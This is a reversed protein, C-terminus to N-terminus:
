TGPPACARSPDVLSQFARAFNSVRRRERSLLKRRNVATNRAIEIEATM